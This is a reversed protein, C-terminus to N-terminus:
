QEAKLREIAAFNHLSGSEVDAFRTVESLEVHRVRIIRDSPTAHAVHGPRGCIDIRVLQDIILRKLVHLKGRDALLIHDLQRNNRRGRDHKHDTRNLDASDYLRFARKISDHTIDALEGDRASQCTVGLAICLKGRSQARRRRTTAIRELM